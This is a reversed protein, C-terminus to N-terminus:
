LDQLPPGSALMLDKEMFTDLMVDGHAETRLVLQLKKCLAPDTGAAAL